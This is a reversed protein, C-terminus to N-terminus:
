APRRSGGASTATARAPRRTPSIKGTSRGSNRSSGPVGAATIGWGSCSSGSDAAAPRTSVMIDITEGAKVSQKSCYGEIWPSRFGGGDARVRTLQWDTAGPAPTRRLSPTTAGFRSSAPSRRARSSADTGGALADAIGRGGPRPLREAASPRPHSSGTEHSPREQSRGRRRNSNSIRVPLARSSRCWVRPSSRAWASPVVLHFEYGESALPTLSAGLFAPDKPM